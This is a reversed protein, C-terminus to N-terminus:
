AAKRELAKIHRENRHFLGSLKRQQKRNLHIYEGRIRELETKLTIFNREGSNLRDRLALLESEIRPFAAEAIREEASKEATKEKDEKKKGFLWGFLWSFLGM